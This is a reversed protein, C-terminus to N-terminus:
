RRPDAVAADLTPDISIRGDLGGRRLLRLAPARVSALRFEVGEAELAVAIEGLMDLTEVDLGPSEALDLVVVQPPPDAARVVGLLREKVASSNAFFLPGDVRVAVVGPRLDWDPHRDVRGWAGSAPDRALAGVSPRSLKQVVLVLTLGVAVILGQLVGFVLVGVLAILSTVIASTRLHAFRRLEAVKFFGSIAVIVIAALTAQPLDEFLPALFAGTLLILGAAVLSALQTKGGARENAMTQSAGGSQVFGHSVGALLNSGGLAVLDRNADLRYGAQDALTRSVSVAEATLIMVGFAPAILDVVDAWHADPWAIHPFASPLEGVVEVGHDRLNLLASILTAAVLVALTAPVKPALRGLAILLALSGLGVALTWGKADDLQGLLTWLRPFFTGTGGPVGFLKPLQGLAVFLGLGFLFGTMVPKSVLDMVGGLRLVGAAALVAASVIALTASLAAFRATDAHALPGVAAASLASTATTASVILTRSTGLLAYAILAGPAAVLGASPPLGAIQAYAVAQPVVVSWVVVGAVLDPRLWARRYGALWAPTVKTLV